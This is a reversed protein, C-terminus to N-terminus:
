GLFTSTELDPVAELVEQTREMLLSFVGAGFIPAALVPGAPVRAVGICTKVM